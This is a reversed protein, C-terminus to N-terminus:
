NPVKETLRPLVSAIDDDDACFEYVADGFSLIDKHHLPLEENAQLRKWNLLTGGTSAKDRVFLHEDRMVIEAHERSVSKNNIVVKNRKSHRGISIQSESFPVSGSGYLTLEAPLRPESTVRLLRGVIRRDVQPTHYYTIDDDYAFNNAALRKSTDDNELSSALPASSMNVFQDFAVTERKTIPADPSRWGTTVDQESALVAFSSRHSRNWRRHQLIVIIALILSLSVLAIQLGNDMVTLQLDPLDKQGTSTENVGRNPEEPPISATAVHESEQSTPAIMAQSSEVMPDSKDMNVSQTETQDSQKTLM